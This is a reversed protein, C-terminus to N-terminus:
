EKFEVITVGGGGEDPTGFRYSRIPAYGRLFEHVARYLKGEGTGHVIRVHPYDALLARDLYKDLAALAEDVRYGHLDLELPLADARTFTVRGSPPPPEPARPARRVPDEPMSAIERLANKVRRSKKKKGKKEEQESESEDRTDKLERLLPTSPEERSLGGVALEVAMPGLQITAKRQDDALRTVEGWRHFARVYVRDGVRLAGPEVGWKEQARLDHKEAVILRQQEEAERRAANLLERRRRLEEEGPLDAILKEVRERAERVAKEREALATQRLKRREERLEEARRRAITEQQELSEARARAERLSEGLAREREEIRRLLEGMALKQDGVLSRARDLVGRPLGENEAIYLAESPGPLDLRLRYTPRHTHPDLSFSANRAGATDDAWKKVPGLHSTALTLAARRAFEELLAQALAGGEEPDTGTGLEDLLVLCHDDAADLIERLRQMHGSFTSIGEQLDQRDGIDAYIGAFLPLRSDPSAPIPSGCQVLAASLAITKMLTTKGGANPGSIVVTRDSGDLAIGVPISEAPRDLHLLPHHAAFLRLAGGQGIVPIKWGRHWANLGLARVGDLVCLTEINRRAQPIWPRLLGTLERMLRQIEFAERTRVLELDNTAEVVPTPEIYLTEGSASSGHVIGAVRGRSAVRVPFVHRGNRVTAYEDQLVSKGRLSDLLRNITTKLHQEGHRIEARIKALAPSADDRILGDADYIRDIARLLEPNPALRACLEALRPLEDAHRTGFAALEAVLQLCRRLRPWDDTELAAGELAGRDLVERIDELGGLPLRRNTELLRIVEGVLALRAQVGAPDFSPELARIYETGLPSAAHEALRELVADFQISERTRSDM